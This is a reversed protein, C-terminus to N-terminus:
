VVDLSAVGVTAHQSAAGAVVAGGILGIIAAFALGLAGNVAEGAVRAKTLTGERRRRDSFRLSYEVFRTRV